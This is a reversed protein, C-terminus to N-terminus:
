LLRQRLERRSAANTKGLINRTHTKLTNVSIHLAAAIEDATMASLLYPLVEKERSTLGYTRGVSQIDLQAHASPGPRREEDPRIRGMYKISLYMAAVLLALIASYGALIMFLDLKASIPRSLLGGVACFFPYIIGPLCITLLKRRALHAISIFSTMIYTLFFGGIFYNLGANLYFEEPTELLITIPVLAIVCVITAFYLYRGARIDSLLCAAVQGPIYFLLPYFFSARPLIFPPMQQVSISDSIGILFSLGAIVAGTTLLLLMYPKKEVAFGVDRADPSVPSETPLRLTLLCLCAIAAIVAWQLALINHGGAARVLVYHATIGLFSAAALVRGAHAYERYVQFLRLSALGTHFGALLFLAATIGYLRAASESQVLLPVLLAALPYAALLIGRKLRGGRVYAQYAYFGFVGLAVSLSYVAYLSDGAITGARSEALAAVLMECNLISFLSLAFYAIAPMQKKLEVGRIKHIPESVPAEFFRYLFYLMDKRM